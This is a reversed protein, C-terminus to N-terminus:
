IRRSTFMEVGTDHDEETYGLMKLTVNSKANRTEVDIIGINLGGFPNNERSGGKARLLKVDANPVGAGAKLTDYLKFLRPGVVSAQIKLDHMKNSIASSTFQYFKPGKKGHWEIRFACGIHVDGSVLILRQDPHAKQHNYIVKLFRRRAHRNKSYSWHDPFDVDSGVISAGVNTLWDPLHIVPVSTTILIVHKDGNKALYRKLDALQKPGYLRRPKVSRQTRLDMM